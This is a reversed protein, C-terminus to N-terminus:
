KAGGKINEFYGLATNVASTVAKSTITAGTLAQIENDQPNSKAVGIEGSKGKFQNKFDEGTAKMGLGATESLELPEIGEVVGDANIGTMVTVDGGYGKQVTTFVYGVTEGDASKGIYYTVEGSDTKLKEEDFDKAETLVKMRTENANKESLAKIKPATIQNTYALLFATVICIIFLTIGPVLIDKIKM